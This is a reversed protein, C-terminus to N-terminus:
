LTLSSMAPLKFRLEFLGAPVLAIQRLLDDGGTQCDVIELLLHTTCSLNGIALPVLEVCGPHCGVVLLPLDHERPRRVVLQAVLDARSSGCREGLRLLDVRRPSPDVLQLCVKTKDLLRPVREFPLDAMGPFGDACLARLEVARLAPRFAELRLDLRSSRGLHVEQILNLTSAFPNDMLFPIKVGDTRALLARRLFVLLSPFQGLDANLGPLRSEGLRPLGGAIELPLDVSSTAAHRDKLFLDGLCPPVRREALLLNGCRLCFRDRLTPTDGLEFSRSGPEPRADTM